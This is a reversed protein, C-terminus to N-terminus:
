RVGTDGHRADGENTPHKQKIYQIQFYPYGSSSFIGGLTM